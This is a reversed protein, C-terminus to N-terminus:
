RSYIRAAHSFPAIGEVVVALRHLGQDVGTASSEVGEDWSLLGACHDAISDRILPCSDGETELCEDFAWSRFDADDRDPVDDCFADTREASTLCSRLWWEDDVLISTDVEFTAYHALCESDTKGSGFDRGEEGQEMIRWGYWLSWVITGTALVGVFAFAVLVSLISAKVWDRMTQM